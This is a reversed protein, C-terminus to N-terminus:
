HLIKRHTLNINSIQRERRIFSGNSGQKFLMASNLRDTQDIIAFCAAWATETKNFHRTGIGGTGDLAKVTLIHATTRKLDVFCLVFRGATAAIAAATTVTTTATAASTAPLLDLSRLSATMATM